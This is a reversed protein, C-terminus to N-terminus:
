SALAALFKKVLPVATEAGFGGDEVVVAFAIDGQYGTFWAHTKPPDDSGYEATGTKGYVDGGAVGDLATATGETVVKRMLSRLTKVASSDLEVPDVDTSTSAEEDADESDDASTDAATGNLVLTPAHWTGSAIAASAGAVTMPSTLVTGQGIMAAAHAVTDGDTPVQGTYATVGTANDQGYGLSAAADALQEQTILDASGVFATNCSEAFDTAFDVSGLVEDEANSFTKGGVTIKSPCAVTTDATMGGDTLLALSSAIKFTSGPPYQGLLARDYSNGNPGGNAVALINGTETDIAVMGALQESTDLAAQAANQITEDLTIQLDEGDVPDVSYLVTPDASASDDDTAPVASVTLGPTGSLQEDYTRQLGSLGTTDGAQVRGDSDEIIDATATGVTGILPRAFDSTPALALKKAQFVAGPIPQLQDRVKQYAARRLTIAEVFTDADAAKVRKLLAASDVGVISAVQTVTSSVDDTRSKQIGVVVVPREKVLVTDDAGIIKGRTADVTDTELTADALDGTLKPNVLASSYNPLWSGDQEVLTLTTKYSWTQDEGVSWKVKLPVTASEGSDSETPDGVTVKTPKDTKESTLGATITQIASAPDDSGDAFALTALNGGTWAQAFAEAATTQADSNDTDRLLYFAAGGAGALVLVVVLAYILVRGNVIM